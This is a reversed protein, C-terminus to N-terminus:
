NPHGRNVALGDGVFRLHHVEVAHSIVAAPRRADHEVIGVLQPRRIRHKRFELETKGTVEEAIQFLFEGAHLDWGPIPFEIERIVATDEGRLGFGFAPDPASLFRHEVGLLERRQGREVAPRVRLISHFQGPLIQQEIVEM